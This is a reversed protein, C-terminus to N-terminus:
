PLPLFFPPTPAPPTLSPTVLSTAACRPLFSSCSCASVKTRLAVGMLQGLFRLLRRQAPFAVAPARALPAWLRRDRFEGVGLTHNAVPVTLPVADSEAEQAMQDLAERYLGGADLGGEGAFVADFSQGKHRLQEM